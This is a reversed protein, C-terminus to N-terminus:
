TMRTRQKLFWSPIIKFPSPSYYTDRKVFTKSDLTANTQRKFMLGWMEGSLQALSPGWDLNWDTPSDWRCALGWDKGPTSGWGLNWDTLSDWLCALVWDKGPASGWGLSWDTPFELQRESYSHRLSYFTLLFSACMSSNPSITGRAGLFVGFSPFMQRHLIINYPPNLRFVINWGRCRVLIKSVRDDALSHTMDIRGVHSLCVSDTLSRAANIVMPIALVLGYLKVLSFLFAILQCYHPPKQDCWLQSKELDEAEGELFTWAFSYTHSSTQQGNDLVM